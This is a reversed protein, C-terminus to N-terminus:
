LSIGDMVNWLCMMKAFRLLGGCTIVMELTQRGETSPKDCFICFISDNSFRTNFFGAAKELKIQHVALHGKSHRCYNGGLIRRTKLKICIITLIGQRTQRNMKM